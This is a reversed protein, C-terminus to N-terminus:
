APITKKELRALGLMPTVFPHILGCQSQTVHKDLQFKKLLERVLDLAWDQLAPSTYITDVLSELNVPIPIGSKLIRVGPLTLYMNGSCLKMNGDSSSKVLGWFQGNTDGYDKMAKIEVPSLAVVLRFEEEHCYSKRKQFLSEPAASVWEASEPSRYKVRGVMIQREVSQLSDLLKGVSSQIVLGSDAYKDWMAASEDKQMYWCSVAYQNLTTRCSNRFLLLTETAESCDLSQPWEENINKKLAAETAPISPLGEWPDGLFDPRIFALERTHLLSILRPFDIYRWLPHDRNADLDFNNMLQINNM